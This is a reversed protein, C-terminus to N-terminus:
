EQDVVGNVNACDVQRRVFTTRMGQPPLTEFATVLPFALLLLTVLANLM